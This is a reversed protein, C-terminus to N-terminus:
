SIKTLINQEKSLEFGNYYETKKDADRCEYNIYNDKIWIGIVIM